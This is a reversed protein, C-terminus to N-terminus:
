FISAKHLFCVLQQAMSSLVHGHTLLLLRLFCLNQDMEWKGITREKASIKQGWSYRVTMVRPLSRSSVKRGDSPRFRNTAPGDVPGTRQDPILVGLLELLLSPWYSHHSPPLNKRQSGPKHVTPSKKLSKARVLLGKKPIIHTLM